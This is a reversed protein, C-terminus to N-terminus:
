SSIEGPLPDVSLRLWATAGLVQYRAEASTGAPEVRLRVVQEATADFTVEPSGTWAIRAQAVHRGPKVSVVVERGPRITGCVEGDIVLRYSRIRDRWGGAPRYFVVEAMGDWEDFDVEYLRSQRYVACADM